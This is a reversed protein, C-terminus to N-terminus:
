EDHTPQVSGLVKAKDDWTAGQFSKSSPVRGLPGHSSKVKILVALAATDTIEDSVAVDHEAGDTGGAVLESEHRVISLHPARMVELLELGEELDKCSIRREQCKAVVAELAPKLSRSHSVAIKCLVNNLESLLDYVEHCLVSTAEFADHWAKASEESAARLQYPRDAVTLTIITGSVTCTTGVTMDIEGALTRATERGPAGGKYYRM